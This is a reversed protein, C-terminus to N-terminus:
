WWRRKPMIVEKSNRMASQMAKAYRDQWVVADDSNGVIFLYEAVVGMAFVRETINCGFIDITDNYTYEAPFYSFVISIYGSCDVEIGDGVIKYRLKCGYNDKVSLIKFIQKDSLDVWKLKSNSVKILRRETLPLYDTAISNCVINVCDKLLELDKNKVETVEDCTKLVQEVGSLQLMIASTKLINNVKM